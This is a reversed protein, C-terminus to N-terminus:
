QASPSVMESAATPALNMGDKLSECKKFRALQWTRYLGHARMARRVADASVGFRNRMVHLKSGKKVYPRLQKATIMRSLNVCEPSCFRYGDKDKQFERKCQECTFLFRAAGNKKAM